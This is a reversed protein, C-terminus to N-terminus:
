VWVKPEIADMCKILHRNYDPGDAGFHVRRHCTPCLGIVHRPHDPGGDSVRTLHHPEFYPAGDPRRFEAPRKCGECCEGTRALVYDRVDKSREYITRPASKGPGVNRAAAYARKRLENLDGSTQQGLEEVKETIGGLDRLEFVIAQRLDGESDPAEEHHFGECVMEGEFRLGAKTKKFLLLDEGELLHDRIAKNGAKWQMPGMQGEGFYEFVGDVRWRDSYGHSLGEDGTIIAVIPFKSPTIIGGQQQGGFRAHFEARRNYVRGREFGWTM